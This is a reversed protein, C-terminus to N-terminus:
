YFRLDRDRGRDVLGYVRHHLGHAHRHDPRQHKPLTLLFFSFPFSLSLSLSIWSTLIQLPSFVKKKKPEKRPERGRECCSARFTHFCVATVIMIHLWAIKLLFSRSLPEFPPSSVPRLFDDFIKKFFNLPQCYTM